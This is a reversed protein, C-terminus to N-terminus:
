RKKGRRTGRSPAATAPPATAAAALLEAAHEKAIESDPSGSLMRSLEVLRDEGSTPTAEAYTSNGRVVKRVGIHNHAFAAVQPLHTVVLVQHTAGLAALSRGVALAAEGGIGADVEDFVLTPPGATLVLRLALMARALEGGSAVKTLPLLEGGPNAALLVRVDDGAPGDVQMGLRAKPMALEALHQQVAKALKPAVAERAARVTAQAEALRALAADRRRDLEAARRDHSMLEDLRGEAEAQYDLVDALTAGYKRRLERLLQRRARIEGLREADEEISEALDRVESAVDTLEASLGKLRGVADNFPARGDLAGLASAVADLGGGEGALAEAAAAGAARHAAADALSDEEADLQEDEGAGTIAARQLEDVQFRYLDIERARAREDGGLDALAAEVAGLEARAETLVGVPVQGYRDIAARQVAPSLLSQHAHQGHLDVLSAGLEALAAVTALRGDLYTRSRGERPIVRRVVHETEGTEPDDLVFRGEVIAEDAGTRVMHGEARGGLLLDIAEVVMTKGAGTEGTVATMGPGLLLRCEHIIGLDTIALEHLM